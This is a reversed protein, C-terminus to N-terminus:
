NLTNMIKWLLKAYISFVIFFPNDDICCDTEM